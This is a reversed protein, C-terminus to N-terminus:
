LVDYLAYRIDFLREDIRRLLILAEYKIANSMNRVDIPVDKRGSLELALRMIRLTRTRMLLLSTTSFRRGWPYLLPLNARRMESISLEGLSGFSVKNKEEDVTMEEIARRITRGGPLGDLM